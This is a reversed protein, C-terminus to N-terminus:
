YQAATYYSPPNFQKKGYNEYLSLQKQLLRDKLVLKELFVQETKDIEVKNQKELRNYYNDMYRDRQYTHHEFLKASNPPIIPKFMPAGSSTNQLLEDGFYGAAVEKFQADASGRSQVFEPGDQPASRVQAGAADTFMPVAQPRYSPTQNSKRLDDSKISDTNGNRRRRGDVIKQTLRNQEFLESIKIKDQFARVYSESYGGPLFEFCGFSSLTNSNTKPRKANQPRPQGYDHAM